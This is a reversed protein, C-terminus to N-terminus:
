ASDGDEVVDNIRIDFANKTDFHAQFFPERYREVTNFYGKYIGNIYLTNVQGQVAKHGMENFTRRVLEDKIYPNVIDNKGARPRLQDFSKV